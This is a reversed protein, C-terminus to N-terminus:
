WPSDVPGEESLRLHGIEGAMDVAGTYLQGNLILGAGFGTGCTIFIMHRCGKGAGFRWEALAGANADNQLYTSIGTAEQIRAVIPVRNWGPLNPPSLIRGQKSDLPGGCSIGLATIEEFVLRNRTSLTKSAAIYNAIATEAGQDPHTPFQIRDRIGAQGDGLVVASETGGIDIGLYYDM